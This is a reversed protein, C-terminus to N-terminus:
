SRFRFNVVCKCLMVQVINTDLGNKVQEEVCKATQGTNQLWFIQLGSCSRGIRADKPLESPNHSISSRYKKHIRDGPFRFVPFYM